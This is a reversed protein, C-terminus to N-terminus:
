NIFKELEWKDCKIEDELYSDSVRIFEDACYREDPGDYVKDLQYFIKGNHEDESVVGVVEGFKPGGSLLWKKFFIM